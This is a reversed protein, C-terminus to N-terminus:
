NSKVKEEVLAMTKYIRNYDEEYKPFDDSGSICTLVYSRGNGLMYASLASFTKNGSDLSLGYDFRVIHVPAGGIEEDREERINFSDTINEYKRVANYAYNVVDNDVKESTLFVQAGYETGEDTKREDKVYKIIDQDDTKVYDEPVFVSVGPISANEIIKMGERTKAYETENNKKIVIFYLGALAGIVLVAIVSFICAVKKKSM